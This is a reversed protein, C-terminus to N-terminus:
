NLDNRTCVSMKRLNCPCYSGLNSYSYYGVTAHSSYMRESGNCARSSKYYINLCTCWKGHMTYERRDLNLQQESTQMHSVLIGTVWPNMIRPYLNGTICFRYSDSYTSRTLLYRSGRIWTSGRTSEHLAKVRATGVPPM